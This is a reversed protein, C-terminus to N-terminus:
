SGAGRRDLETQIWGLIRSCRAVGERAQNQLDRAKDVQEKWRRKEDWLEELTMQEFGMM